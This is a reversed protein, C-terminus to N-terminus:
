NGGTAEDGGRATPPQTFPKLIEINEHAGRAAETGPAVREVKEWWTVAERFLGADAFAVAINYLASYCKPDVKVAREYEYMADPYRQLAYYANGLNSRAKCDDPNLGLAKEFYQIAEGPQELDSYLTGLNVLAEIYKPNLELAQEYHDKAKEENKAEAYANALKFHARYSTPSAQVDKSARDIAAKLEEESKESVQVGVGLIDEQGLVAPPDAVPALVVLTWLIPIGAKFTKGIIHTM